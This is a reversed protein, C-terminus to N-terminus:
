QRQRNSCPLYASEAIRGTNVAASRSQPHTTNISLDSDGPDGRKRYESRPRSDPYLPCLQRTASLGVTLTQVPVFREGTTDTETHDDAPVMRTFLPLARGSKAGSNNSWPLPTYPGIGEVLVSKPIGRPSQQFM